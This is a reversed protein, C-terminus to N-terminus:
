KAQLELALIFLFFLLTLIYVIVRTFGNEIKDTEMVKFLAIVGIALTTAIVISM